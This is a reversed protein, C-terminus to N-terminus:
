GARGLGLVGFRGPPHDEESRVDFSNAACNWVSGTYRCLKDSQDPTFDTPLTLDASFGSLCGEPTITWYHGTQLSPDSANPHNSDVRQVTLGTLCGSTDAVEVKALTPGFTLTGAGSVKKVVTDTDTLKVEVAGIDCRWDDRPQGRQDTAVGCPVPDGGDIAPSNNPLAHTQTPGGNNALTTNLISALATPNTGDSTAIINSPGPTFGSIAAATDEGSHGFLNHQPAYIAGLWGNEVENGPSGHNGAILNRNLTAGQGNFVGGGSASARNGSFTNDLVTAVDCEIYIGGGHGGASNGSLTSNQLELTAYAGGGNRCFMGGGSGGTSNGSLTSNSVTLTGGNSIGGGNSGGGSQSTNGSITSNTVTMHSNSRNLIGGGVGGRNNSLRSDQITASGYNLIGGGWSRGSNGSVISNSVTLTGSNIIGGGSGYATNNSLTSNQVVVTGGSSLMM